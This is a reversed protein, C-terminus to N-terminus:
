RSARGVMENCCINVKELDREFRNYKALSTPNEFISLTINSNVESSPILWVHEPNLMDRNDFALCLFYDAITNKGIHFLWSDNRGNRIRRCSSKVDIKYGKGCIFDFGRNCIPM